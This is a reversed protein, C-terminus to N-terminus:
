RRADRKEKMAFWKYMYNERPRLIEVIKSKDLDNKFRQSHIETPIDEVSSSHSLPPAMSVTYAESNLLKRRGPVEEYSIPTEKREDEADYKVRYLRSDGRENYRVMYDDKELRNVLEPSTNRLTSEFSEDRVKMPEKVIKHQGQYSIEFERQRVGGSCSSRVTRQCPVVSDEEQPIIKKKPLKSNNYTLQSLNSFISDGSSVHAADRFKHVSTTLAKAMINDPLKYIGLVDSISGANISMSSQEGYSNMFTSSTANRNKRLLQSYPTAAKKRRFHPSSQDVRSDEVEVSSDDELNYGLKSSSSTSALSFDESKPSLFLQDVFQRFESWSITHGEKFQFSLVLDDFNKLTVLTNNSINRVAILLNEFPLGM